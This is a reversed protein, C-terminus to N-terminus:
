WPAKVNPDDCGAFYSNICKVFHSLLWVIEPGAFFFLNASKSLCNFIRFLWVLTSLTLVPEPIDALSITLDSISLMTADSHRNQPSFMILFM